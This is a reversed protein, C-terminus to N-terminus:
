ILQTLSRHMPCPPFGATNDIDGVNVNQPSNFIPTGLPNDVRVVQVFEAGSGFHSGSYVVLFTGVTSGAGGAGFVQAPM